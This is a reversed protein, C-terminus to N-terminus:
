WLTRVDKVTVVILLLILAAFGAAHVAALTRQPLPRRLLAEAFVVAVRGGDLAPFPLTNLIALNLSLLAVFSLLAIIGLARVEGTLAAIGVPGSIDEPMRGEVVLEAVLDGFAGILTATLSGTVLAGRLPAEYWPTSVITSEQTFQVGLWGEGAPPDRRPVAPIRLANEGRKVTFVIEKGRHERIFSSADYVSRPRVADDGAADLRVIRDGEFFGAEAAPSGDRISAISVGSAVPHPFAEVVGFLLAALVWNMFVGALLILLKTRAPKAAFSREPDGSPTGGDEGEIRVFGGFPLANISYTTEGRTRSWIRPPFGFGFEHVRVGARKAAFFHGGEHVLVLVSLVAIFLLATAIM